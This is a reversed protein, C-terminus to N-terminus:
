SIRVVATGDIMACYGDYPYVPMEEVRSDEAWANLQAQDAVVNATSGMVHQFWWKITGDYTVASNVQHLDGEEYRSFAPNEYAFLSDTFDGVFAVPTTGEEYGPLQQVEAMVATMQRATQDYVLKTYVYAGNACIIMRVMLFVCLLATGWRWLARPPRPLDEGSLLLLPLAYILFVAHQMLIYVNGSALLYVVNLGLPLLVVAILTQLVTRDKRGRLRVWLGWLALLLMFASAVRMGRDNWGSYGLLTQFFNKYTAPIGALIAAPGLRTLQALGNGTDALQYGTLALSVKVSILYLVAGAALAALARVGHLLWARWSTDELAQRVLILLFLGLAFQIYAQYFALCGCFLVAAACFGPVPRAKELCFVGACALVMGMLHADTWLNYTALMATVTACCALLGTLLAAASRRLRLLAAICYGSFAIYVTSFIGILWPAAIKGRILPFYLNQAWRGLVYMTWQADFVVVTSDHNPFLNAFAFGHALLMGALAALSVAALLPRDIRRVGGRVKEEMTDLFQEM